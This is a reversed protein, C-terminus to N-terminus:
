TVFDTSIRLTRPRGEPVVGSFPPLLNALETYPAVGKLTASAAMAAAVPVALVACGVRPPRLGCGQLLWLRM